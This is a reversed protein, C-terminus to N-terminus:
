IFSDNSSLTIFQANIVHKGTKGRYQLWMVWKNLFYNMLTTFNKMIPQEGVSSGVFIKSRHRLLPVIADGGGLLPSVNQVAACSTQTHYIPWTVERTTLSLIFSHTRLLCVCLSILSLRSHAISNATEEYILHSSHRIFAYLPCISSRRNLAAITHCWWWWLDIAARSCVIARCKAARRPCGARSCSSLVTQLVAISCFLVPFFLFPRDNPISQDSTLCPRCCLPSFFCAPRSPELTGQTGGINKQRELRGLSVWGKSVAWAEWAEWADECGAPVRTNVCLFTCHSLPVNFHVNFWVSTPLKRM